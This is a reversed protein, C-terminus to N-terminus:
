DPQQAQKFLTIGGVILSGVLFPLVVAFVLVSAEIRAMEDGSQGDYYTFAAAVVLGAWVLFLAIKPLYFAMLRGFLAGFAAFVLASLIFVLVM